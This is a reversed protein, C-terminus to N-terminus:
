VAAFSITTMTQAANLAVAGKCGAAHIPVHMCGGAALVVSLGQIHIRLICLPLATMSAM